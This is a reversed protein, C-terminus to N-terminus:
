SATPESKAQELQELLQDIKGRLDESLRTYGADQRISALTDAMAPASKKVTRRYLAGPEFKETAKTKGAAQANRLTQQLIERANEGHQRLKKIALNASIEENLVMDRVAKPAGVLLLLDDVYDTGIHFKNAIDDTSWGFNQLRKCVIGVEYPQLPVGTNDTYLAATLDEMTTGQPATIVPVTKIPANESKALLAAAYRRHGGYVVFISKGNERAVYVALPKHQHFGERKISDAIERIKAHHASNPVRANFQEMVRLDELPVQWLDRSKVGAAAEKVAGQTLDLEFDPSPITEHKM